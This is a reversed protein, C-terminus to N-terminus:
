ATLKNMRSLVNFKSMKQSINQELWNKQTHTHTHVIKRYNSATRLCAASIKAMPWAQTQRVKINAGLGFIPKFLPKKNMLM